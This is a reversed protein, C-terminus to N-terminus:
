HYYIWLSAMGALVALIVVGGAIWGLNPNEDMDATMPIGV